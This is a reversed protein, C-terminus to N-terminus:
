SNCKKAIEYDYMIEPSFRLRMAFVKAVDNEFRYPSELMKDFAKRVIEIYEPKNDEGEFLLADLIEMSTEPQSVRRELEKFPTSYWFEKLEDDYMDSLWKAMKVCSNHIREDGTMYYLKRMASALVGHMFPKGGYCFKRKTVEKPQPIEMLVSICGSQVDQKYMVREAMIRCANLYYEDHTIDYAAQLALMCWGPERETLFDFKRTYYKALTDACALVIDKYRKIGTMKYYLALGNNFIHGMQFQIKPYSKPVLEHPYYNNAHGVTHVFFYGKEEFQIATHCTDVEAYHAMAIKALDYFREDGTRLYHIMMGYHFDYELNMWHINNEGFSDGYNLMGYDRYSERHNLYLNLSNDMYEDYKPFDPCGCKIRGFALSEEVSKCDPRLFTMDTLKEADNGFIITHYKRLGGHFEYKGTKLYFFMQSELIVDENRYYKPNTIHPCIGIKLSNDGVNVSKPYNQWFDEVIVETNYANFRGELKEFVEKENILATKEDIQMVNIKASDECSGELYLADINYFKTSLLDNEFGFELRYADIGRYIHLHTYCKMSRKGDCMFRNTRSIVIHNIGEEEVYFEGGSATYRLGDTGYIVAYLDRDPLVSNNDNCFNYKKDGNIVTINGNESYVKFNEVSGFTKSDTVYFKRGDAPLISTVSVTKASADEWVSTVKYQIPYNEGTEDTIQLSSCDFMQGKGFPLVSTVPRLGDKKTNYMLEVNVPYNSGKEYVKEKCRGRGCLMNGDEDILEIVFRIGWFEESITFRHNNLYEEESYIADGLLIRARCAVKTWFRVEGNDTTLNMIRNLQPKPADKMLVIASFLVHEGELVLYKIKDGKKLEVADETVFFYYKKDDRGYRFSGIKKGNVSLEVLCEGFAGCEEELVPIYEEDYTGFTDRVQLALHYKGDAPATTSLSAGASGLDFVCPAFLSRKQVHFGESHLKDSTLLFDDESLDYKILEADGSLLRIFNM